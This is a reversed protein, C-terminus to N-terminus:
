SQFKSLSPGNCLLRGSQLLCQGTICLVQFESLVQHKRANTTCTGDLYLVLCKIITNGDQTVQFRRLDAVITFNFSVNYVVFVHYSSNHIQHTM